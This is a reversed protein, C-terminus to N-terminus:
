FVLRLEVTRRRRGELPLPVVNFGAKAYMEQLNMSKTETMHDTNGLQFCPANPDIQILIEGQTYLKKARYLVGSVLEAVVWSAVDSKKNIGKRYAPNVFVHVINFIHIKHTARVREFYGFAFGVGGRSTPDRAIRDIDEDPIGNWLISVFVLVKGKSYFNNGEYASVTFPHTIASSVNPLGGDMSPHGMLFSRRKLDERSEIIPLLGYLREQTRCNELVAGNNRIGCSRVNGQAGKLLANSEDEYMDVMRRGFSRIQGRCEGPGM